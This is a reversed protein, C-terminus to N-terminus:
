AKWVGSLDLLFVLAFGTLYILGLVALLNLGKGVSHKGTGRVLSYNLWAFVPATVFASIMAFKLMEGLASNFWLVLALGSLVAWLTWVAMVARSYPKRTILRQSEALARGYLDAVTLTTGFMCAFAIFAVLLRSWDGIVAAYMNILQGVYAGGQLKVAEGNGYQVLAGLALFVIALVASVLYGLNFDFMADEYSVKGERQKALIWMSNGATVELPAPMWGMLAVVFGLAAMNWPSPEIFDPQIHSGKAAAIAVALLTSLTLSIMIWKTVKDLVKFHGGLVIILTAAMVVTTLVGVSLDFPLVLKLIVASLLAVAGTSITASAIALLSFAWLYLRSKEAYGEILSKGSDMTYHVSFRFFPYKLLNALIIIVALQWGYLAGAQTSAILHSGGVAASALLIGPGLAALRKQRSLTDTTM